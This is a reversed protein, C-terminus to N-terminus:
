NISHLLFDVKNDMIKWSPTEDQLELANITECVIRPIASVVSVLAANPTPTPTTPPTVQAFSTSAPLYGASAPACCCFFVTRRCPESTNPTRWKPETRNSCWDCRSGSLASTLQPWCLDLLSSTYFRGWSGVPERPFSSFKGRPLKVWTGRGPSDGCIKLTPAACHVLHAGVSQLLRCSGRQQFYSVPFGMQRSELSNRSNKLTSLQFPQWFVHWYLFPGLKIRLAPSVKFNPLVACSVNSKSNGPLQWLKGLNTSQMRAFPCTQRYSVAVQLKAVQHM